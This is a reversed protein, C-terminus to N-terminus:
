AIAQQRIDPSLEEHRRGGRRHRPDLFLPSFDYGAVHGAEIWMDAIPVRGLNAHLAIMTRWGEAAARVSGIHIDPSWPREILEHGFTAPQTSFWSWLCVLRLRAFPFRRPDRMFERAVWLAAPEHAFAATETVLQLWISALKPSRPLHNSIRRRFLEGDPLAAIPRVFTEPPLKRLWMPLGAATAAEALGCGDIVRAIVRAPDFARRPVALAFCCRLFARPLTPSARLGCRSRACPTASARIIDACGANACTPM